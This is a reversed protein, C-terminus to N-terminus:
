DKSSLFTEEVEASETLERVDATVQAFHSMSLDWRNFIIKLAAAADIIENPQTLDNGKLILKGNDYIDYAISRLFIEKGLENNFESLARRYAPDGEKVRDVMVDHKYGLRRAEPSNRKIVEPSTPPVPTKKQWSEMVEAVGASKIKLRIYEVKEGRTIKLPTTYGWSYMSFNEDIDEIIRATAEDAKRKDSEIERIMGDVSGEGASIPMEFQNMQGGAIQETLDIEMENSKSASKKSRRMPYIM